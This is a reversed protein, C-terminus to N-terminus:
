RVSFCCELCWCNQLNGNDGNSALLLNGLDRINWQFYLSLFIYCYISIYHFIDCYKAIRKKKYRSVWLVCKFLLIGIVSDIGEHHIYFTSVFMSEHVGFVLGFFISFTCLTIRPSFDPFVRCSQSFNNVILAYALGFSPHFWIQLLLRKRNVYWVRRLHGM